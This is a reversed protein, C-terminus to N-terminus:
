SRKTVASIRPKAAEIEATRTITVEDFAGGTAGTAGATV